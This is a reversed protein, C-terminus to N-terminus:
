SHTQSTIPAGSAHEGATQGKSALKGLALLLGLMLCFYDGINSDYLACNFLNSVTLVLVMTRAARQYPQSFHRTDWWLAVLLALQLGIGGLGLLVGWLLFEQHPNGGTGRYWPDSGADLRRYQAPWSGAGFGTLPREGIAQASRYWFNLRASTSSPEKNGPVFAAAEVWVLHARYKLQPSTLFALGVILATAVVALWRWHKQTGWVMASAVVVAAVLYGTRGKLMFLVNVLALISLAVACVRLWRKPSECRLHWCLGAFAATMISQHLYEHFVSNSNVLYAATVWPVPLGLYLACSSLLIFIQVVACIGLAVRVQCVSTLVLPIFVILLLKSYKVLDGAAETLSATTYVFSLALAMLMLVIVRTSSGRWPQQARTDLSQRYWAALGTLVLALKSLSIVAVSVGVSAALAYVPWCRLRLWGHVNTTM